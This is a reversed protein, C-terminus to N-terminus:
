QFAEQKKIHSWCHGDTEQVPLAAPCRASRDSSGPGAGKGQWSCARCHQHPTTVWSILWHCVSTVPWKCLYHNPHQHMGEWWLVWLTEWTDEMRKETRRGREQEWVHQTRSLELQIMTVEPGPVLPETNPRHLAEGALFPEGQIPWGLPAAGVRPLPCSGSRDTVVMTLVSLMM